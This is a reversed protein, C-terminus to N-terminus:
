TVKVGHEALARILDVEPSYQIAKMGVARAEEVNMAVDDIFLCEAPTTCALKAVYAFFEAAPKRVGAQFSMGLADFHWLVDAYTERFHASHLMNTNSALVIRHTPKLRPILEIVPPNPTFIDVFHRRFQKPSDRYGILEIAHAVFEDAAMRGSEFEHELPGNYLAPLMEGEAMTSVPAFRRTAHRHDFFGIVNGFDFLIARIV